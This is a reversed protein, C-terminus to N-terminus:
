RGHRACLSLCASKRRDHRLRVPVSTQCPNRHACKDVGADAILLRGSRDMCLSTPVVATPLSIRQPLAAGGAAFRLVHWGGAAGAPRQLVWLGGSRDGCIKDPRPVPWSRLLRMTETDYVKISDDFPSSVCLRTADACLGRIASDVSDPVESIPLFAGRLTDGEGGHGGEFPAAKRIDGRLRRSIGNWRFGKAPWAEGKLGGGENDVRQAIFLYKANAAVAAGGDYGWGHTHAAVAAVEGARYEQVNAGGEEWFVNTFLTGDPLVCLDAVDQLTWRTKGNYSNGFWSVTYNLKPPQTQATPALLVLLMTLGALLKSKM